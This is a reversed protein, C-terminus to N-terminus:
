VAVYAQALPDSSLALPYGLLRSSKGYGSANELREELENLRDAFVDLSPDHFFSPLSVAPVFLVAAPDFATCEGNLFRSEAPRRPRTLEGGSGDWYLVRHGINSAPEDIGLFFYLVGREPLPVPLRPVEAFNIQAIFTLLKGGQEPWAWGAPLDPVGGLRSTGRRFAKQGPVLEVAYSPRAVARLRPWLEDLGCAVVHQRFPEELGALLPQRAVM